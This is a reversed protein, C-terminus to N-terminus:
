PSMVADGHGEYFSFTYSRRRFTWAGELGTPGESTPKAIAMLSSLELAGADDLYSNLRSEAEGGAWVLVSDGEVLAISGDEGLLGRRVRETSDATWLQVAGKESFAIRHFWGPLLPEIARSHTEPTAMAKGVLLRSRHDSAAITWLGVREESDESANPGRMPLFGCEFGGNAELSHGIRRFAMAMCLGARISLPLVMVGEKNALQSTWHPSIDRVGVTVELRDFPALEEAGLWGDRTLVRVSGYGAVSLHARALRTVRDDIDVTAVQGDKGTIEALLAANFGSGAGVELVRHGRGVQLAELMSAMVEPDSSASLPVGAKGVLIPIAGRRYVVEVPTEPLFSHRPVSDFAERVAESRLCGRQMLDDVMKRHLVIPSPKSM